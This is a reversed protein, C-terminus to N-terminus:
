ARLYANIVYTRMCIVYMCVYNTTRVYEQTGKPDRTARLGVVQWRRALLCFQPRSRLDSAGGGAV